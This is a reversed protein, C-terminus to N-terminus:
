KENKVEYFTYIGLGILVLIVLILAGLVTSKMGIWIIFSFVSICIGIIAILTIATVIYGIFRFFWEWFM